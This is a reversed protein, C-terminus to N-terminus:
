NTPAIVVVDSGAHHVADAGAHHHVANAADIAARAIGTGTQVARRAQIMAQMQDCLRTKLTEDSHQFREQLTSLAENSVRTLEALAQEAQERHAQDLHQQMRATLATMAEKALLHVQQGVTQQITTTLQATLQSLHQAVQQQMNAYIKYQEAALRALIEDNKSAQFATVRRLIETRNNRQAEM